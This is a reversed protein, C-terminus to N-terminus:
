QTPRQFTIYFPNLSNLLLTPKLTPFPLLTLNQFSLYHQSSGKAIAKKSNNQITMSLSAQTFWIHSCTLSPNTPVRHECSLYIIPFQSLHFLQKIPQLPLHDSTTNLIDHSPMTKFPELRVLACLLGPVQPALRM